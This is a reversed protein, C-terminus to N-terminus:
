CIKHNKVDPTVFEAGCNPCFKADVPVESKCGNCILKENNNVVPEIKIGCYLCFSSKGDYSKLCNPCRKLQNKFNEHFKIYQSRKSLYWPFCIIWLLLFGVIWETPNKPGGIRKVDEKSIHGMLDSVEVGAWVTSGLILLILGWLIM